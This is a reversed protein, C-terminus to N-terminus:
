MREKAISKDDVCNSVPVSWCEGCRTMLIANGNKGYEGTFLGSKIRGDSPVVLPFTYRKGEKLRKM